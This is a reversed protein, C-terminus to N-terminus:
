HTLTTGLELEPVMPQHKKGLLGAMFTYVVPTLYLTVLQSVILGGVVALGLPKRAEGGAGYGLAIPVAGLLAAMTTMMIPRFRVLCGEHIAEVPSKGEKREAELAFDIQMIANKKVLGVLMLLGVFSYVNLDVKFLILTLLAGLGASPIGSLITLPHIYSEYLVGLVIYVVMIAVALLMGLNTLSSQFAAANGTFLVNVTDPLMGKALENVKDVAQGLSVNQKLNFSLTVSPMQGTHAISQPMADERLKAVVDLATLQGGPSKFYIKSLYDAHEQYKPQIEMLVRYQNTPAYITSALRPGFASYLANEIQQVDLRSAAARDRDIVVNVRPSSIELDTNVDQVEPLAAIGALLRSAWTYLDDTNQSQVTVQYSSASQRGGIRIAAPLTLFARFGPFRSIKPRLENIVEQATLQRERRPKLIINMNSRNGGGGGFGGGVSAMFTLVNPDKRVVDALQRQYEVMKYFSTGQAAIMNLNVQDNDQDPIFGKPVVQYLYVTGALMGVFVVGMIYRHKLVGRLSWAYARYMADFGRETLRYLWSHKENPDHARLFRGCLMPTFSISVLGSVLIAVTITVAFERFLRGLIGGMFLVPIFVAALSITMSIITFGIERSAKLAAPFPAMGKEIYRVINELMVIADDVVFGICLILAMMSMNDLTYHLVAMVAFTGLISFPLALAPILTASANRLFVFIVGVVLVLTLLMTYQVDQFADRISRSRDGRLSLTVTPPLAANFVPLLQRIKDAVEVTNAGPQKYVSLQISRMAVDRGDAGKGYYWSANKDNEVSDIVHAVEELRIPAGKQWSVVMPRFASADMLQGNVQVNYASHPGFLTGTPVNVNWRNLAAAVENLGVNRERLKDPDLQVRVAYKQAGFVQVQAVGEVMSIRPAMTIEGYDDLKSLPLTNSTLNLFMIPQDAPNTKRFSPPTPMGPPLLPMVEAIATQVDVAAGDIDRDLSFQLTVSSNGTSSTSTMSDLGAITTFQRELVTAVASAMTNPDAGPLGASVTITPYEVNPLDSVPLSRYAVIGFLAIAAMLLSTAIPRRIFIESFNV